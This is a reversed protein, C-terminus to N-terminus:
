KQEPGTASTELKQVFQKFDDREHLADLDTDKKMHAVHTAEKFYGLTQSERLLAVARLAYKEIVTAREGQTLDEDRAAVASSLSLLCAANYVNNQLAASQEDTPKLESLKEASEVAAAHNNEDLQAQGRVFLLKGAEAPPQALVFPLDGLARNAARCFAIRQVIKQEWGTLARSLKSKKKLSELIPHALEFHSIAASYHRRSQQIIGCQINSAVLDYTYDSVEPLDKVLQKQIHIAKNYLEIAEDLREINKHINALNYYSGALNNAFDPREPHDRILREGIVISKNYSEIAEDPQELTELAVDILVAASGLYFVAL